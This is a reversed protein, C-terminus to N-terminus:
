LVGEWKVDAAKECLDWVQDQTEKNEEQPKLPTKFPAGGTLKPEFFEGSAVDAGFSAQMLSLAGDGAGQAIAMLWTESMGGQEATTVQLNTAALGPAACVSKIKSGKAVLRHHLAQSFMLNAFKSQGYRVWRAGGFFMSAGNGGLNGGNPGYMKPDVKGAPQDRALSSHMVVRAEGHAAAAKELLAWCGHILLTHSLQNTQMQIDYGDETAMDALAMVGANCCMVDIGSDAYKAQLTDCAARVSKFSSLDCPIFEFLGSPASDKLKSLAKDQRESPRNLMVVIAGKKAAALAMYYGTGTTCGTICIVKGGVSSPLEFEDYLKNTVAAAKDDTWKSFCLGM